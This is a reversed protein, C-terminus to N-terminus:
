KSYGSSSLSIWFLSLQFVSMSLSDICASYRVEETLGDRGRMTWYRQELAFKDAGRKGRRDGDAATNDLGCIKSIFFWLVYVIIGLRLSSELIIGNLVGV